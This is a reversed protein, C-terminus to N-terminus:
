DAHGAEIAEPLALDGSYLARGIICGAVGLDRLREVDETTAIGGAAITKFGAAIMQGALSLSPGALVGDRTVDTCVVWEVALSRLEEILAAPTHGSQGVWGEIAVQGDRVDISAAVREAEYRTLLKKLLQPAESAATGLIVRDIGANFLRAAQSHTRIGGGVQIPMTVHDRIRRIHELNRLRGTRAGDLDVVHLGEAGERAFRRAISVPDDSYVTADAFRGQRLRVCRGNLLDIAPLVLM